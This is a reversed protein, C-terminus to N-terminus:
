AVRGTANWSTKSIDLLLTLAHRYCISSDPKPLVHDKRNELEPEKHDRHRRESADHDPRGTAVPLGRGTTALWNPADGWPGCRLPPGACRTSAALGAACRHDLSCRDPTVGRLRRCATVLRGPDGGSLRVTWMRIYTIDGVWLRNPGSLTFDRALKPFVAEGHGGDSTAVTRTAEGSSTVWARCDAIATKSRGPSPLAQTSRSQRARLRGVCGSARRGGKFRAPPVSLVARSEPM